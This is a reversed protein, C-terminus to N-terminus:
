IDIRAVGVPLTETEAGPSVLPVAVVLIFLLRRLSDFPLTGRTRFRVATRPQFSESLARLMAGRAGARRTSWRRPGQTVKKRPRLMPGESPAISGAENRRCQLVAISQSPVRIM